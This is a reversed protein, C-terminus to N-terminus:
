ANDNEHHALAIQIRGNFATHEASCAKEGYKPVTEAAQGDRGEQLEEALKLFAARRANRGAEELSLKEKAAMGPVNFEYARFPIQFRQCLERSFAEDRKAEAGRIGHNVHLGYLQFNRRKQYQKLLFLLCVSDAGGSLGVIVQSGTEIMNYKEIYSFVKEEM